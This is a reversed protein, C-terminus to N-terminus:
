GLAHVHLHEEHRMAVSLTPEGSSLELVPLAADADSYVSPDTSLGREQLSTFTAVHQTRERYM